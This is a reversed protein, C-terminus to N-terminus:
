NNRAFRAENQEMQRIHRRMHMLLFYIYQYVDLGGLSNVSMWTKQLVGQGDALMSIYHLIHEKQAKLEEWVEYLSQVGAPLMHAPTKWEFSDNVGIQELRPNTLVYRRLAKEIDYQGAKKVAKEAGKKILILLYRNALMIHEIIEDINWEGPDPRFARLAANKLGWRGLSSFADDALSRLLSTIEDTTMEADRM